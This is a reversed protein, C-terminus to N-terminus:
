DKSHFCHRSQDLTTKNLSLEPIEDLTFFRAGVTEPNTEFPGSLYDCQIFFTFITQLVLGSLTSGAILHRFSGERSASLEQRKGSKGSPRTVGKNGSASLADKYNVSSYQVKILLENQPLQPFPITEIASQFNGDQDRIILAKFQSVM